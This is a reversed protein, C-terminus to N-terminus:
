SVQRRFILLVTRRGSGYTVYTHGGASNVWAHWTSGAAHLAIATPTHRAGSMVAHATRCSTGDFAQLGMVTQRNAVACRHWNQHASASATSAVIALVACAAAFIYAFRTM